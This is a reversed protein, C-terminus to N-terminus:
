TVSVQRSKLLLYATSYFPITCIINMQSVLPVLSKHDCYQVETDRYLQCILESASCCNSERFNSQKKSTTMYCPANAHAYFM